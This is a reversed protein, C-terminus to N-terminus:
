EWTSTPDLIDEKAVRQFSGLGETSFWNKLRNGIRAGGVDDVCWELEKHFLPDSVTCAAQGAQEKDTSIGVLYPFRCVVIAASFSTGEQLRKQEISLDILM